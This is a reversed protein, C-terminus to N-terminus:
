NEIGANAGIINKAKSVDIKTIGAANQKNSKLTIEKLAETRATLIPSFRIVNRNNATIVKSIPYHSIHSYVITIQEDLPIRLSYNGNKDSITGSTSFQINVGEIPKQETNKVVGRLVTTKQAWLFTPM